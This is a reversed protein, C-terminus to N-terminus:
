FRLFWTPNANSHFFHGFTASEVQNEIYTFFRFLSVRDFNIFHYPLADRKSLADSLCRSNSSTLNASEHRQSEKM